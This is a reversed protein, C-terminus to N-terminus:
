LSDSGQRDECDDDQDHKWSQSKSDRMSSPTRFKGTSSGHSISQAQPRVAFTSNPQNTHSLDALFCKEARCAHLGNAGDRQHRGERGFKRGILIGSLCHPNAEQTGIVDVDRM